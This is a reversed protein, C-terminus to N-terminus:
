VKFEFSVEQESHLCHIYEQLNTMEELSKGEAFGKMIKAEREEIIEALPLSKRCMKVSTILVGDEDAIVIDGNSVKHGFVVIERRSLVAFKRCTWTAPYTGRAWVPLGIRQLGRLDRVHGDVVIGRIGRRRAENAFMEGLVAKGCVADTTGIVLVSGPPAEIIALSTSPQDEGAIATFAPGVFVKRALLANLAPPLPNLSREADCLSSVQVRALREILTDLEAM